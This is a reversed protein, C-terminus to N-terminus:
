RGGHLVDKYSMIGHQANWRRDVNARVLFSREMACRRISGHDGHLVLRERVIHRHVGFNGSSWEGVPASDFKRNDRPPSPQDNFRWQWERKALDPVGGAIRDQEADAVRAGDGDRRRM